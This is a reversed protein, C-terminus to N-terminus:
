SETGHHKTFEPLWQFVTEKDVKLVSVALATEKNQPSKCANKMMQLAGFCHNKSHMVENIDENARIESHCPIQQDGYWIPFIFEDPNYSAFGLYGPISDRKFPCEKCCSTRDFKM